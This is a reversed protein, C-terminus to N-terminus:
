KSSYRWAWDGEDRDVDSTKGKKLVVVGGDDMENWGVSYLVFQGDSTRCYHLPLGNIIDHPIKEIFQPSLAALSKPFEGHALHYRELAIAVRAMNVANQGYATKQAYNGLSPLALRAFFDFPTPRMTNIAAASDRTMQPAIIQQSDNVMPLNWQQDMQALVLENQYYWGKPMLYIMMAVDFHNMTNRTDSDVMDFLLWFRGRKQEMWDLIKGASARESRVSFEYDAPFDLKLLESDLEALQANSWKHEALGEWIPQLTIQLIAIRVLHTIIFPETSISDALRLALKVDDLAKESEDNQLEAIARLQLALSCQKLVALHPLLIEAPDEINYDLPFRSHPLQSAQRLEEIVPDYKSLALLVDAGPSQPQPAVPFENTTAALARYYDRWAKLDSIKATQWNGDKPSDEYNHVIDMKLRNVFNTDRKDQPIVKGDRTLIQGYSTFVIPTMAFNQDDPVSPPVFDAFDFKEGKAEWEHKYKEWDHKGRWDEEAYFLAILTAFCALGFLFRKFNRWCFVWRIFKITFLLMLTVFLSFFLAYAPLGLYNKLSFPVNGSAYIVVFVLTLPILWLLLSRPGKLSKKWISKPDENM